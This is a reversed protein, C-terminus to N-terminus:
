FRQATNLLKSRKEHKPDQVEESDTFGGRMSREAYTTWGLQLGVTEMHEYWAATGTKSGSALEQKTRFTLSLFRATEAGVKLM